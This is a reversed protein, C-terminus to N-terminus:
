MELVSFKLSYCVFNWGRTQLLGYKVWVNLRM